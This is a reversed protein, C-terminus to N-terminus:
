AAALPAWRRWRSSSRQPMAIVRRDGKMGSLVTRCAACRSVHDDLLLRRGGTLTGNLYARLDPGFEACGDVATDTLTSWVRGRAAELTAPAVTEQTMEELAKELRDQSM